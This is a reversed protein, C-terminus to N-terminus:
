WPQQPLLEGYHVHLTGDAARQAHFYAKLRLIGHALVARCLGDYAASGSRLKLQVSRDDNYILLADGDPDLVRPPPPVTPPVGAAQAERIYAHHLLYQPVQVKVIFRKGPPPPAGGRRPQVQALHAGPAVSAVLPPQPPIVAVCQQAAAACLPKHTPWHAKACAPGCYFVTMCGSCRNRAAPAACAACAGDLAADHALNAAKARVLEAAPAGAPGADLRVAYRQSAAVFEVAVGERGNLEPRGQLGQLRVRRGVLAGADADLRKPEAGGPQKLSAAHAQAAYANFLQAAHLNHQVLSLPAYGDHDAIRPDAGAAMLASVCDARARLTPEMLATRGARNQANVDGGAALLLPLLGLATASTSNFTVHMIPTYGAVDKVGPRAGADLLLRMVAAHDAGARMGGGPRGVLRAGSICSLLPTFRLLSERRELLKRLADDGAARAAAIAAAVAAADGWFAACLLPSLDAACAADQPDFDAGSSWVGVLDQGPTGPLTARVASQDGDGYPDARCAALDTSRALRREHQARLQPLPCPAGGGAAFAELGELGGGAQLQRLAELLAADM